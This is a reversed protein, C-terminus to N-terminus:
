SSREDAELHDRLLHKWGELVVEWEAEEKFSSPELDTPIMGVEKRLARRLSSPATFGASYAASRATAGSELEAAARLLRLWRLTRGPSPLGARAFRRALTRTSCHAIEAMASAGGMERIRRFSDRVVIRVAPPVSPPLAQLVDAIQSEEWAIRVAASIEAPSDDVGLSLLSHVGAEAVAAIETATWDRFKAYAIVPAPGDAPTTGLLDEGRRPEWVIVAAKGREPEGETTASPTWLVEWRDFANSERKLSEQLRDQIEPTRVLVRIIMRTADPDGADPINGPYIGRIIPRNKSCPM